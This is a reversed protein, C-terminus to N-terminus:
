GHHVRMAAVVLAGVVFLVTVQLAVAEHALQFVVTADLKRSIIISITFYFEDSKVQEFM